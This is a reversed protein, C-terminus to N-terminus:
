IICHQTRWRRDTVNHITVLRHTKSSFNINVGMALRILSISQYSRKSTPLSWTFCQTVNAMWYSPSAQYWLVVLIFHGMPYGITVHGIVDLSGSLDFEHDL